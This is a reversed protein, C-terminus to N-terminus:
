PKRDEPPRGKLAEIADRCAICGHSIKNQTYDPRENTTNRWVRMCEEKAEELAECWATALAAEAAEARRMEASMGDIAAQLAELLADDQLRLVEAVACAHHAPDRWCGEWHAGAVNPYSHRTIDAM